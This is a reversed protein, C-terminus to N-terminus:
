QGVRRASAACVRSCYRRNANGYSEFGTHCTACIFQYFAKRNSAEPHTAWWRSRCKDSCFRRKKAGPTQRLAAACYGCVGVPTAGLNNRQCYSKVTNASLGLGTAIKTYGLGLQRLHRIQQKQHDNM